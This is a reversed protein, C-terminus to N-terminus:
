GGFRRPDFPRLDFRPEAGSIAEALLLGSIPGLGVGSGEHGTSTWVGDAMRGIAPLGDPSSGFLAAWRERTAIDAQVLASLGAAIEAAKAPLARDRQAPDTFDEDGGGAIVRGDADARAYLYSESAEWIMANERWLPATGPETAIAFSTILSFAPPLFLTAREYGGALIVERARVEGQDTALTAGDGHTLATAECPFTLTAGNARARALLDLTLAVPDVEFSDGSILAPRPAIGFREAVAPAPLFQSPLEHKARLDAEVADVTAPRVPDDIMAKGYRAM